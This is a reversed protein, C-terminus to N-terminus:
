DKDLELLFVRVMAAILCGIFMAATYFFVADFDAYYWVVACSIVYGVLASILNKM